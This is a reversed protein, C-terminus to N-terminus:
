LSCGVLVPENVIRVGFREHVGAAVERALTLLDEARAPGRNTLALAHKTSLSAPGPAGYGKGFGAREILWAASTKVLPEGDAGTGAPYRPADEPLVAAEERTLVPNTFFSGASWTDHDDLHAEDWVMGKGERLALVAARVDTMSVRDGVEVGLRRALEAYGIPASRDTFRFQFTVDLVVYRSEPHEGNLAVRETKLRSTRYGFRLDAGAFTRQRGAVRDFTRVTAITQSVDQGYAGVNQVPTAGVTGPIGSLAEVGSWGNAVARAVLADWREGAAATVVAGGCADESGLRVGTTAVHVVTGDFGADSVLLNSGGGVLLLPEGGADAERVAEVLEDETHAVVVRRAPGGVRLSTLPAILPGTTASTTM